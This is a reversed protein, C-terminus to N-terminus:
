CDLFSGVNKKLDLYARTKKLLGPQKTKKAKPKTPFGGNGGSNSRHTIGSFDHYATWPLDAHSVEEHDVLAIKVEGTTNHLSVGTGVGSMLEPVVERSREEGVCEDAFYNNQGGSSSQGFVKGKGNGQTKVELDVQETL